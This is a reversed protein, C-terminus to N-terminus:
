FLGPFDSQEYEIWGDVLVYIEEIGIHGQRKFHWIDLIRYSFYRGDKEYLMNEGVNVHDNVPGQSTAIVARKGASDRTFYKYAYIM